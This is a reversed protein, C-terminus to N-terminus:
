TRAKTKLSMELPLSNDIENVTSMVNAPSNDTKGMREREIKQVM